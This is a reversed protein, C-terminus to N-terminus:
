DRKYQESLESIIALAKEYTCRTAVTKGKSGHKRAYVSYYQRIANDKFLGFVNKSDDEFAITTSDRYTEKM